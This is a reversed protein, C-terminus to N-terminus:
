IVQFSLKPKESLMPTKLEGIIKKYFMSYKLNMDNGRNKELTAYRKEPEESPHCKIIVTPNHAMKNGGYMEGNEKVQSIFIWIVKPFKVRLENLQDATIGLDTVSDAVIVNCYKCFEQIEEFPKELFGKIAILKRGQPTANRNLSDITDKSATGGQEYDIYAVPKGMEGFANAIQMALQSKSTRKTGKILILAKHPQIKQLFKGIEGPLCFVDKPTNPVTSASVFGLKELDAITKNKSVRHNVKKLVSVTRIGKLGKSLPKSKRLTRKVPEPVVAVKRVPKAKAPPVISKIVSKPVVKKVKGKVVTKKKPSDKRKNTSEVKPTEEKEEDAIIRDLVWNAGKQAKASAKFFFRNDNELEDILRSNWGRLYKASNERTHFLIGAESSLFVAGLEAVLEEFAYARKDTDSGDRLRTDNGRDLRKSHGTSHIIEHFYTSYYSAPNNFAGIKPMNIVDKTPLYKADSGVFTYKPPNPYQDIIKQAEAIPNSKERNVPKPFELGECDDARFVVYYKVLPIRVLYMKFDAATLNNLKAFATFKTRDSTKFSLNESKYDYIITYYVVKYGKSDKKLKAKKDKIQNFTLYYPEKFKIPEIIDVEGSRVIKFNLLFFNIGTYPKKSVFNKAEQGSGSGVWEQQWPLHGVEKITNIMVGTIYDYIENPSVAKGLGLNESDNESLYPIIGNLMGFDEVADMDNSALGNLGMATIAPSKIVISFTEEDNNKLAKAIREAIDYQHEAKALAQLAVLTQRQVETGNLNNFTQILNM